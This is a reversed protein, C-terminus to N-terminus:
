YAHSQRQLALTHQDGVHSHAQDYESRVRIAGREAHVASTRGAAEGVEELGKDSIAYLSRGEPACPSKAISM